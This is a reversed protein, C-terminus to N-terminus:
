EQQQHDCRDHEANDAHDGFPQQEQQDDSDDDEDAGEGQSGQSHAPSGSSVRGPLFPSARRAMVLRRGIPEEVAVADLRDTHLPEDVLRPHGPHGEVPM